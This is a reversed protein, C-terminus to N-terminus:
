SKYNGSKRLAAINDKDANEREKRKSEETEHLIEELKVINVKGSGPITL